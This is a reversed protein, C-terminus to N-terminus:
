KMLHQVWINTVSGSMAELKDMHIEMTIMSVITDEM